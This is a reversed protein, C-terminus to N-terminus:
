PVLGPYTLISDTTLPTSGAIVSFDSFPAPQIVVTKQAPSGTLKVYMIRIGVFKVITYIANNGPGSVTTFLPIARPKGIISALEDKIGASLGTDGQIHLPATDWRLETIGQQALAAFDADNLGYVIQRAIDATSNNLSGFDVTGRNGPPLTVAGEPYLNVEKIGDAGNSVTKSSSNYTYNDTGVGNNILNNWTGVDLTIPLVGINQGPTKHFGVGAQMASTSVTHVSAHKQGMIPAFFLDLQGDGLTSSGQDRHLTVEAMNYPQVGWKKVYSNTSTDWSYNGVRIDRSSSAYVSSRGGGRNAAAVAVAAARANTEAQAQTVLKGPGFADALEINAGLAAADSSKQLEAKTTTIYGVDVTFATFAFVMVLATASMVIINGRRTSDAIRRASAKNSRSYM